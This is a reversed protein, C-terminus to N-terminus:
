AGGNKKKQMLALALSFLLALVFLLALSLLMVGMLWLDTGIPIEALRM